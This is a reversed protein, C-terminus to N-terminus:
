AAKKHLRVVKNSEKTAEAKASEDMKAFIAVIIAKQKVSLLRAWQRMKAFEKDTVKTKEHGGGKGGKKAFATPTIKRALAAFEHTYLEKKEELKKQVKVGGFCARCIARLQSAEKTVTSEKIGDELRAVAYWHAAHNVSEIDGTKACARGVILMAEAATARAVKALGENDTLVHAAYQAPEKLNVGQMTSVWTKGTKSKSTAM